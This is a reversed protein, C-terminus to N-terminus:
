ILLFQLAITSWPLQSNYKVCKGKFHLVIVSPTLISSMDEIFVKRSDACDWFNLVSCITHEGLVYGYYTSATSIYRSTISNEQIGQANIRFFFLQVNIKKKINYYSFIDIRVTMNKINENVNDDNKASIIKPKLM